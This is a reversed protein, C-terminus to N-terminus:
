NPRAAPPANARREEAGMAASCQVGMGRRDERARALDSSGNAFSQGDMVALIALLYKVQRLHGLRQATKLQREMEKRSRTSLAFRVSCM